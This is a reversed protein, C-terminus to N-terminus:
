PTSNSLALEYMARLRAGIAAPSFLSQVINAGERACRERLEADDLVSVIERALMTADRPVVAGLRHESIVSALQVDPTIVAPVGAAVAELVSVGFNEHYSPLVFLDAEALWRAKEAGGVFGAFQISEDGSTRSRLDHEYDPAGSGAIVLRASPKSARVAPWADILTELGKKRHLRSLFLVTESANGDRRAGNARAAGALLPPPVVATPIGRVAELRAAEDREEATTYHLVSASRIAPADLLSHYARKLHTRRHGFTYRSLTGFPRIVYPVRARRCSRAASTSVANFLGHVHVVDPRADKLFAGTALVPAIRLAGRGFTRVLGVAVGPLQGRLWELDEAPPAPAAVAMEIGAEAAAAAYGILAQTPGGFARSLDPLVHLVRM